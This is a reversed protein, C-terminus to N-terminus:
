CGPMGATQQNYQPPTTATAPVYRIACTAPTIAKNHQIDNTAITFDGTTVNIDMANVLNTANAAYGYVTNVSPGGTGLQAGTLVGTAGLTGNVAAKGYIMANTASMSGQVGKMVSRRADNAISLFKPLAIAALIGLIVIVVILEILTFGAQKKM